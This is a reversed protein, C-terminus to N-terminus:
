LDDDRSRRKREVPRDDEDDRSRRKRETPEDDSTSRKRESPEDDDRSRRKRETPEDDDRSRRKRDAPVDDEDDGSRRKRDSKEEELDDFEEIDVPAAGFAEGDRRYRIAELSCNIRKGYQNDQAWIRVIADVYCGAYPRGDSEDLDTKDRDLIRPKKQNRASLVMMGEYGDYQYDEGDHFPQKDSKIKPPNKAWKADKVDDITDEILDCMLKGAKTEPDILFSAQYSPEGGDAFAKPRFLAPFSLRVDKLQIKGVTRDNDKDAM